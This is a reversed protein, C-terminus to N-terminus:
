SRVITAIITMLVITGLWACTHVSALVCSLDQWALRAVLAPAHLGLWLAAAPLSGGNIAITALAAITLTFATIVAKM